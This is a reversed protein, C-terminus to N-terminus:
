VFSHSMESGAKDLEIIVRNIFNELHKQAETIEYNLTRRCTAVLGQTIGGESEVTVEPSRVLSHLWLLFNSAIAAKAAPGPNLEWCCCCACPVCPEPSMCSGFVFFPSHQTKLRQTSHIDPATNIDHQRYFM